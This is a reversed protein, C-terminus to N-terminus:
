EYGPVMVHFDLGLSRAYDVIPTITTRDPFAIAPGGTGRLNEDSLWYVEQGKRFRILLQKLPPIGCVWEKFGVTQPEPGLERPSKERNTVPVFTFCWQADARWSYMELQFQLMDLPFASDTAGDSVGVEAPTVAADGGVTNTKTSECALGVVLPLIFSLNRRVNIDM